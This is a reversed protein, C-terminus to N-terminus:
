APGEECVSAVRRGSYTTSAPLESIPGRGVGEVKRVAGAEPKDMSGGKTVFEPTEDILTKM